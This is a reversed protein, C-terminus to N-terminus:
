NRPLKLKQLKITRFSLYLSPLLLLGNLYGLPSILLPIIIIVTTLFRGHLFM